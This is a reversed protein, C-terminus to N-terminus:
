VDQQEIFESVYKYFAEYKEKKVERVKSLIKKQTIKNIKDAPKYAKKFTYEKITGDKLVIKKLYEYETEGINNM